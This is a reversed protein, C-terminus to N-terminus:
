NNLFISVNKGKNILEFIGNGASGICNKWMIMDDIEKQNKMEDTCNFFKM